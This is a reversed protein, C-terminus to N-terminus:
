PMHELLNAIVTELPLQTSRGQPSGLITSSGGWGAEMESLRDALKRLEAHGETWQAIVLRRLPPQSRPDEAVGLVVPALRYGLRLAGRMQGQVLAIRANAAHTLMIRQTTLAELLRKAAAEAREPWGCPLMGTRLWTIAASVGQAIALGPQALGAVLAGHGEEGVGVESIDGVCHPLPREGPWAGRDFRDERAIIEARRRLGFRLPAGNARLCLIAM